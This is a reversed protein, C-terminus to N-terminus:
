PRRRPLTFCFASGGAPGASEAWIRGGHAIVIAQCVYLDLSAGELRRVGEARYSREFIHPREEPALGVGQDRVCVQAGARDAEVVVEVTGGDPSHRVANVVLDRLVRTLRRADWSGEVAGTARVSLAVRDTTAAVREVVSRAILVLDTRSPRLELQGSELYSFDLLLDVREALHEAQRAITALAQEVAQGTAQGAAVDRGLAQVRERISRTPGKLEDSALTFFAEVLRESERRATVDRFAVVAGALEGVPDHLPAGRVSLIQRRDGHREVEVERLTEGRKIAELAEAVVWAGAPWERWQDRELPQGRVDSQDDVGLLQGAAHNLRAVRGALDVVLIAEGVGAVIAELESVQRRLQADVDRAQGLSEIAGALPAAIAQLTALDREQYADARYAHVTLGGVVRDGAGIPAAMVSEPAASRRARTPHAGPGRAGESSWDGIRRARGTQVVESILDSGVPYSGGPLEAGQDVSFVVEVTQAAQDYLALVFRETEIVGAVARHLSRSLEQLRVRETEEVAPTM